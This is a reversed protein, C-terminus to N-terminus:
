QAADDPAFPAAMGTLSRVNSCSMMSSGSRRQSNCSPSNRSFGGIVKVWLSVVTM